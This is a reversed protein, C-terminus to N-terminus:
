RSGGNVPSWRLLSAQLLRLLADLVYGVIGVVVITAMVGEM